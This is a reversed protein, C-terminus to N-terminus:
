RTGLQGAGLHLAECAVGFNWRTAGRGGNEDTPSAARELMAVEAALNDHDVGCEGLVIGVIYRPNSRVGIAIGLRYWSSAVRRLPDRLFGSKLSSDHRAPLSEFGRGEPEFGLPAKRRLERLRAAIAPWAACGWNSSIDSM